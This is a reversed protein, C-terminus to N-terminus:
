RRRGCPEAASAAPGRTIPAPGEVLVSGYPNATRRDKGDCVTPKRGSAQCGAILGAFASLLLFRRM